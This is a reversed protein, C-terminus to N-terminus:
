PFWQQLGRTSAADSYNQWEMAAVHSDAFLVNILSRSSHTGLGITAGSPQIVVNFTSLANPQFVVEKGPSGPDVAPSMMILTSTPVKWRGEFTDFLNVNLGYSVPVPEEGSRPRVSTSRDFPSRFAQWDNVYNRNLVVPWPEAADKTFMAGKTDTLMRHMAQGLGKLNNADDVARAREIFKALSPALLAVLVAIISVVVLLEILTFAHRKNMPPPHIFPVSTALIAHFRGIGEWFGTIEAFVDGL